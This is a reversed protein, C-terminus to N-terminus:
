VIRVQHYIKDRLHDVLQRTAVQFKGGNPHAMAEELEFLITPYTLRSIDVLASSLNKLIGGPRQELAKQVPKPLYIVIEEPTFETQEEYSALKLAYKKHAALKLAATVM